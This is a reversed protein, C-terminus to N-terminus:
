SRQAYAARALSAAIVALVVLWLVFGAGSATLRVVLLTVIVAACMGVVLTVDEALFDYIWRVINVLATM